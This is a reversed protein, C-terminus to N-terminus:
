RLGRPDYRSTTAPRVRAAIERAKALPDGYERRDIGVVVDENIWTHGQEDLHDLHEEEPLVCESEHEPHLARCLKM